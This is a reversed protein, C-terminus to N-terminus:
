RSDHFSLWRFYSLTTQVFSWLLERFRFLRLLAVLILPPLPYALFLCLPESIVLRECMRPLRGILFPHSYHPLCIM